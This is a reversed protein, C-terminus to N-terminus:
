VNVRKGRFSVVVIWVLLMVVFVALVWLVTGMLFDMPTKCLCKPLLLYGLFGLGLFAPYVYSQSVYPKIRGNLRVLLVLLVPIILWISLEILQM